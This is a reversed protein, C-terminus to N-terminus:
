WRSCYIIRARNHLSAPVSNNDNRGALWLAVEIFPQINRSRVLRFMITVLCALISLSLQAKVLMRFMSQNCYLLAIFKVFTQTTVILIFTIRYTTKRFTTFLIIPPIISKKIICLFQSRTHDSCQFWNICM